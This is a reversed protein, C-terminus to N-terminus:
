CTMYDGRWLIFGRSPERLSDTCQGMSKGLLMGVWDTKREQPPGAEKKSAEMGKVTELGKEALREKAEKKSSWRQDNTVNVDRLKLVGGFDTEGEIEFM